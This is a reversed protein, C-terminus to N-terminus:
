PQSPVDSTPPPQYVGPKIGAQKFKDDLTKRKAAAQGATTYDLRSVARGSMVLQDLVARLEAASLTAPDIGNCWLAARAWDSWSRLEDQRGFLAWEVARVLDALDAGQILWAVVDPALDYHALLLRSSALFIDGQQYRSTLLNDDHVRDWVPDLRPVFGALTWTHGDALVVNTGVLEPSRASSAPTPLTPPTNILDAM